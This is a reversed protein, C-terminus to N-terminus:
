NNDFEQVKDKHVDLPWYIAEAKDFKTDRIVYDRSGSLYEKIRANADPNSFAPVYYTEAVLKEKATKEDITPFLIKVAYLGVGSTEDEEFYNNCFGRIPEDQHLVDNFLVDSIKTKIIEYSVSSFQTRNLTKTIEHVMAEAETYNTALILEEVKRKELAGVNNEATYDTKLRFYAMPKIEEM